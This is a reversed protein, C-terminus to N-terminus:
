WFLLLILAIVLIAFIAILVWYAILWKRALEEDNQGNATNFRSRRSRVYQIRAIAALVLSVLLGIGLFISGALLTVVASIALIKAKRAHEEAELAENVVDESVEPEVDASTSDSRQAQKRPASHEPAVDQNKKLKNSESEFDTVTTKSSSENYNNSGEGDITKNEVNVIKKQSVKVFKLRNHACSSILLLIALAQFLRV